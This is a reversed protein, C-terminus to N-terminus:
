NITADLSNMFVDRKTRLFGLSDTLQPILEDTQGNIASDVHKTPAPPANGNSGCVSKCNELSHFILPQRPRASHATCYVITCCLLTASLDAARWGGLVSCRSGPTM